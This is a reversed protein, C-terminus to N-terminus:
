IFGLEMKKGYVRAIKELTKITPNSKRPNELRQYVQYSINLKKAIEIQSNDARLKRLMLAVAIHAHVPIFQIDEGACQSPDCIHFNREFDSELCGNLAEEANHLAEELTSGFTNINEFDPFSVLFHEGERSIKAPYQLM